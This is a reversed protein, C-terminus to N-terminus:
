FLQVLHLYINVLMVATLALGAYRLWQNNKRFTEAKKQAEPDSIRFKGIAFLYTYVGIALLLIEFVLGLYEM